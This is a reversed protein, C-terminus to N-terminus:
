IIWRSQTMWGKFDDKKEERMLCRLRKQLNNYM